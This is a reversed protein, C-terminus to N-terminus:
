RGPTRFRGLVAVPLATVPVIGGGVGGRTGWRAAAWWSVVLVTAVAAIASVLRAARENVGLLAFAGGILWYFPAPKNRYPEGNLSPVVWGEWGHAAPMERGIEARRAEDPEWVPYRNLGSCLILAAVLVVLVLAEALSPSRTM